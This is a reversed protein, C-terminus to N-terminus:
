GDRRDDGILGIDSHDFYGNRIFHITQRFVVKRVVTLGHPGAVTIHDVSNELRTAAPRIVFDPKAEIIGTQIPTIASRKNIFSDPTDSLESM